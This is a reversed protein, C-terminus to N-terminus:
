RIYYVRRIYFGVKYLIVRRIHFGVKNKIVRRIYFSYKVIYFFVKYLGVSM